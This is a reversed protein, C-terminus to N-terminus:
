KKKKKTKNTLQPPTQYHAEVELVEPHANITEATKEKSAPAPERKAATQTKLPYVPTIYKEPNERIWAEHWLAAIMMIGEIAAIAIGWGKIFANWPKDGGGALGLYASIIMTVGAGFGFARLAVRIHNVAKIRAFSAENESRVFYLASLIAILVLNIVALAIGVYGCILSALRSDAEQGDVVLSIVFLLLQAVTLVILFIYSYLYLRKKIESSVTEKAMARKQDDNMDSIYVLDGGFSDPFALSPIVYKNQVHLGM